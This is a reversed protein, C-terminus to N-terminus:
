IGQEKIEKLRKKEARERKRIARLDPPQEIGLERRLDGVDRELEEEWFVNIVEKSRAGNRLAWKIRHIVMYATPAIREATM